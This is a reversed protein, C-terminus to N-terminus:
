KLIYKVIIMDLLIIIKVGSYVSIFHGMYNKNMYNRYTHTTHLGRQKNHQICDSERHLLRTPAGQWRTHRTVHAHHAHSAHVAVRATAGMDRARCLHSWELYEMGFRGLLRARECEHRPVPTGPLSAFM